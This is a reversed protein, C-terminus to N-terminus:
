KAEDPLLQTPNPTVGQRNQLILNRIREGQEKRIKEQHIKLQESEAKTINERHTHWVDITLQAALTGLFVGLAIQVILKVM